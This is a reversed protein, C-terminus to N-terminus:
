KDGLTIEAFTISSKKHVIRTEEPPKVIWDSLQIIMSIATQEDRSYISATLNKSFVSYYLINNIISIFYDIDEKTFPKNLAMISEYMTKIIQQYESTDM